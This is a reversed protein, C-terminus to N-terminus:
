VAEPLWTLCASSITHILLCQADRRGWLGRGRRVVGLASTHGREWLEVVVPPVVGVADELPQQRPQAPVRLVPVYFLPSSPSTRLPTPRLCLWGQLGTM